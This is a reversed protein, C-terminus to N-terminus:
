VATEGGGGRAGGAAGGFAGDSEMQSRLHARSRYLGGKAKRYYVRYVAPTIRGEQRMRRLEERLPRITRIWERKKPTRAYKHGKRSGHGKRKRKAKQERLKRARGSSIGRVQKKKIAGDKILARVDQRTVAEAVDEMADPDIFVRHTGCKLLQSAMRKQNSLDSM